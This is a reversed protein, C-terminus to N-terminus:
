SPRAFTINDDIVATPGIPVQRPNPLNLSRFTIKDRWVKRLFDEFVQITLQEGPCRRYGFGFPAFGAYDCVPLPKGDVVGFVTGFASNAMAANRGDSVKMTTLDFPCKAFGIQKSKAEDVQASTLVGLYRSPDFQRPNTWHMPDFSTSTHPSIMYGNREFPLGFRVFPSVSDGYNDGSGSLRTDSISSISGGNPSITRFMEMVLMELPTYPAGNTADPNGSMTKEFAARVDPDGGDQSLRSMIGFITNGWQSFAVFNHFCEFVVDKKSFHAGDGANKLWYWAITREPNPIRANEIDDLREDIWNRLFDLLARVTMYNEYVIRQTPDRFALVTNFSEGITRVQPPIADGKVGLHLDWYIDWYYDLYHRMFPRGAFKPDLLADFFAVVKAGYVPHYLDPTVASMYIRKRLNNDGRKELGQLFVTVGEEPTPKWGPFILGWMDHPLANEKSLTVDIMPLVPREGEYVSTLFFPVVANEVYTQDFDAPISARFRALALALDPSALSAATADAASAAGSFLGAASAAAGTLVMRREM